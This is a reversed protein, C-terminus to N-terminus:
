VLEVKASVRSGDDKSSDYFLSVTLRQASTATEGEKIVTTYGRLGQRRMMENGVFEAIATTIERQTLELIM